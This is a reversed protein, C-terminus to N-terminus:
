RLGPLMTADAAAIDRGQPAVFLLTLVEAVRVRSGAKVVASQGKAILKGDVETASDSLACLRFGDEQRRLEFHWRSIRKSQDPALVDMVVDNAALGEYERLRGFGIIDQKPLMIEANTEEIYVKEPFMSRDRWDLALLDAPQVIGKLTVRGLPQCNLRHELAAEQFVERTLRIEGPNASAAVRACLNVSDGRVLEGDTLVPGSHIGIRARLQRNRARTVNERSMRKQFEIVAEIAGDAAPFTMFAGDGALDVIRGGVAPLCEEWLGSHLQQLQYGAADGFRSFYETSGVIDSFVLTVHREFRRTLEQQLEKLLQIIEKMSLVGPDIM